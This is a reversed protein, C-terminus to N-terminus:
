AADHKPAKRKEELAAPPFVTTTPQRPQRKSLLDTTLKYGDMGNLCGKFAEIAQEVSTIVKAQAFLDDSVPVSFTMVFQKSM